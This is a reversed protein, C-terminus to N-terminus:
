YIEYSPFLTVHISMSSPTRLKVSIQELCLDVYATVLLNKVESDGACLCDGAPKQGWLVGTDRVGFWSVAAWEVWNGLNSRPEHNFSRKM